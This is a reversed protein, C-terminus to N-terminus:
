RIRKQKMPLHDSSGGEGSFTYVQLSEVKALVSNSTLKKIENQKLRNSLERNPERCFHLEFVSKKLRTHPTTRMQGLVLDLAKEFSEGAKVTNFLNEKLTRLGREVLGIPTHIYPTGYKISYIDKQM